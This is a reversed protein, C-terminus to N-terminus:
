RNGNQRIEAITTTGMLQMTRHLEEQLLTLARAAGTEGAVAVGYLTARGVLVADAGLQLAKYADVGRRIGSDFLVPIRGAVQQVVSPLVAISSPAGDLQRGGHNTVVIADVGLSIAREADDPHMVGKLIFKGPWEDRLRTLAAWDLNLNMQQDIFFAAGGASRHEPPLYRNLNDLSPMGHPYLVRKMWRPHRLVDLKNKLTISTPSLFNRRNWERNGLVVADSTLVLTDVGIAQARKLIDSQIRADNLCYLQQWLEDDPIARRVDEMSSTSVCSLCFPVGHAAAAKALAIDAEPYVMGNYGTPGIMIPMAWNKGLVQTRLDQQNCPVLTRPTLRIAAFDDQNARLTIEREAGGAVYEWAFNPVLRKANVGLEAISQMRALQTGRYYKRKM